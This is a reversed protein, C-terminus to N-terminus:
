RKSAFICDCLAEFVDRPGLLRPNKNHTPAGAALARPQSSSSITSSSSGSNGVGLSSHNKNRFSALSSVCNAREKDMGSSRASSKCCSSHHSSKDQFQQMPETYLICGGGMQMVIHNTNHSSIEYQRLCQMVVQEVYYRQDKNMKSFPFLANPQDKFLAVGVQMVYLFVNKIACARCKDHCSSAGAAHENACVHMGRVESIIMQVPCTLMMHVVDSIPDTVKGSSHNCLHAFVKRLNQGTLFHQIIRQYNAEWQTSSSFVSEAAPEAPEYNNQVLNESLHLLVDTATTNVDMRSTQQPSDMNSAGKVSKCCQRKSIAVTAVM